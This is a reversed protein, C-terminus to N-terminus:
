GGEKKEVCSSALRPPSPQVLLDFRVEASCPLLRSCKEILILQQALHAFGQPGLHPSPFFSALACPAPNPSPCTPQHLTLYICVCSSTQSLIPRIILSTTQRPKKNNEQTYYWRFIKLGEESGECGAGFWGARRGGEVGVRIKIVIWQKEFFEM